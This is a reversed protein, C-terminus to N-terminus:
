ESVSESVTSKVWEGPNRIVFEFLETKGHVIASKGARVETDSGLRSATASASSSSSMERSVRLEFYVPTGPGGAVSNGSGAATGGGSGAGGSNAAITAAEAADVDSVRVVAAYRKVWSFPVQRTYLMGQRLRTEVRTLKGGKQRASSSSPGASSFSASSSASPSPSASVGSFSSSSTTTTTTTSATTSMSTSVTTGGAPPPSAKRSEPKPSPPTSSSPTSPPLSTNLSLQASLGDALSPSSEDTSSSKTSLSAFVNDGGSAAGSARLARLTEPMRMSERFADLAQQKRAAKLRALQIAQVAPERSFTLYAWSSTLLVVFLTTRAYNSEQCDDAGEDGDEGEDCSREPPFLSLLLALGMVVGLLMGYRLQVQLSSVQRELARVTRRLDGDDDVATTPASAHTALDATASADGGGGGGRGSDSM